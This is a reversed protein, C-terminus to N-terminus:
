RQNMEIDTCRWKDNGIYELECVFDIRVTAGFANQADVWGKAIYKDDGLYKVCDDTSQWDGKWLSGFSATGPSKLGKKVFDQAMVWAMSLRDEAEKAEAEKAKARAEEAERRAKVQVTVQEKAPPKPQHLSSAIVIFGMVISFGIAWKGMTQRDTSINSPLYYVGWILGVPFCMFSCLILVIKKWTELPAQEMPMGWTRVIEARECEEMKEWQSDSVADPKQWASVADQKQSDTSLEWQRGTWVFRGKLVM